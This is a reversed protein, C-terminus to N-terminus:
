DAVLRFIHVTGFCVVSVVFLERKKSIIRHLGSFTLWHKPSVENGDEPDLFLGLLFGAAQKM